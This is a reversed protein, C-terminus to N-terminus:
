SYHVGLGGLGPAVHPRLVLDDDYDGGDQHRFPVPQEEPLAALRDRLRATATAYDAASARDAGYVAFPPVAAMGTYWFLGHQIPFLVSDLDGHLGRPGFTAERAGITVIALARRGALGGDGYRLPHGSGDTVGFAFGNVFVRDVWGKLIAPFGMWWLPFQLVLTDAWRLKEQEASIDPSLEGAAHAAKAAPGVLLREATDLGFDGAAVVPDWKMAYLDSERVEHGRATLTDVGEDRLAGSLSRQEPHAFVWLVKMGRDHTRAPIAVLPEFTMKHFFRAM